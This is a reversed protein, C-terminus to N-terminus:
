QKLIGNRFELSHLRNGNCLLSISSGVCITRLEENCSNLGGPQIVTMNDETGNNFAHVNNLLNFSEAVLAALGSLFDNNSITTLQGLNAIADLGILGIVYLLNFCPLGEEYVVLIYCVFFNDRSNIQIFNTARQNSKFLFLYM